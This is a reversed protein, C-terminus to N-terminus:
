QVSVGGLPKVTITRIGGASNSIVIQGSAGLSTGGSLVPFFFSAPSASDFEINQPLSKAQLSNPTGCVSSLTYSGGAISIDVRYGELPNSACSAGIKIQSQARSKALNLMTVVDDASTRLMQSQNFTNFGAISLTGLVAAISITVMLEILTFGKQKM